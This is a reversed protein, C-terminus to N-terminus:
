EPRMTDDNQAGSAIEAAEEFGARLGSPCGLLRFIDMIAGPNNSLDSNSLNELESALSKLYAIKEKSYPSPRISLQGRIRAAENAAYGAAQAPTM